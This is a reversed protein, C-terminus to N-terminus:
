TGADCIGVGHESEEECKRKGCYTCISHDGPICVTHGCELASHDGGDCLSSGCFCPSHDTKPDLTQDCSFHDNCSLRHAGGDDLVQECAPCTYEAWERCSGAGTGHTIGPPLEDSCKSHNCYSCYSHDLDAVSPDCQFHWGCEGIVAHTLDAVSPDCAYHGCNHWEQDIILTHEGGDCLNEGCGECTGHDGEACGFHGCERATRHIMDLGATCYPHGCSLIAHNKDDCTYHDAEGCGAAGHEGGDCVYHAGCEATGHEGGACVYHVGCVAKGHDETDCQYHGAEGCDAAGHEGGDCVHHNGCAAKGHEGSDCVHHNGCAAKGHEDGDCVYHVGCAAKGHDGTDCQYHGAEGCDATGHEGGDCVYHAGCVAKGHDETDCQYHGAEGCDAAGHEGSDCVHHNGCEAKGHEGGDCVYHAGCEAAGHASADVECSFHGCVLEHSANETKCKECINTHTHGDCLTKGCDGVPCISTHDAGDCVYHGSNGCSAQNHDVGDCLKHKQCDATGHSKGDCAYHGATGCSAAGHKSGDCRYHGNMGCDAAVHTGSCAYHGSIGCPAATHNGEACGYHGCSQLAHNMGSVTEDCRYHGCNMQHAGPQQCVKCLNDHTHGDCLYKGCGLVACISTHDGSDCAYHGCTLSGHDGGDCAYHGCSMEGHDGDDCAYHGCSMEGHDGDDCVYHGCSLSEHEGGDCAYHGCATEGHDGDDCAYHGCSMEGHEGSDCAYHGCSMEGHEGDDCAYHGCPMEGHEGDDCAYHGCTMTGHDGDDCSYHGCSMEGHDGDDCAYHGCSLEGHDGSDCAYHGCSMTGHEGDDCAYHGCTLSGHEGDDCAYHGCPMEGHDSSDCAYHGCPMEGHDGSDCAYHGCPMEGHDGSDCAYHGCPMEGHEGSDCAYHGCPMEGHDGDDCAYHGCPMEGHDGNDCAYHGCPMEGHEGDDCAYHGCPMEGHDGSDCAYHGCPMEGHDGSDCAYHGCPMEGHEGSDCAYHGCSMIGHEGSGCAYHGCDLMQHSGGQCVYHGCVLAEHAGAACAFHGCASLQHDNGDCAYHEAEGCAATHPEGNELAKGCVPCTKRKFVATIAADGDSVIFVTQAASADEITGATTEWHDFAYGEAAEASLQVQSGTSYSYDTNSVTGEGSTGFTLACMPVDGFHATLAIHDTVAFRYAPDASVLEGDMYWGIFEGGAVPQAEVRAFTGDLYQGGGNVAGFPNNTHVSVGFYAIDSGRSERQCSIPEGSNDSLSYEATSGQQAEDTYEDEILDPATLTLVDGLEVPIDAYNQVRTVSSHVVNYESLSVNVEGDGTATTVINYEADAPLHIIIEGDENMACGVVANNTTAVKDIMSAVLDGESDYIEVNVPCNVRVTRLTEPVAMTYPTDTYNPDGARVWALTIEQHHAQMVNSNTFALVVDLVEEPYHVLMNSLAKILEAATGYLDRYGEPQPLVEHLRKVVQDLRQEASTGNLRFIPTLVYILNEYDNATMVDMVQAMIVELELGSEYGKLTDLLQILDSQLIDYYANRGDISGVFGTIFRTLVSNMTQRTDDIVNISIFPDGSPLFALPDVKVQLTKAYESIRYEVADPDELVAGALIEDFEELMTNRASEFQATTVTPLLRATTNYRTFEWDIPAIMTVIDNPNVINHINAHDMDAGVSETLAGQPPEFAYCYLDEFALLAGNPLKNENLYGATLNAVAGGRSYGVVWIKVRGTINCDVIYEELFKIVNDRAQYFGTHGGELGLDVNDGWENYYNGGRIPLAILTYDDFKKHAAIVGISDTSPKDNWFDNQAYDVFGIEDLLKRANQSKEAWVDTEYSSWSSLELCLSMTALSPNYITSATDFYGDSYAYDIQVDHGKSYEGPFATTGWILEVEPFDYDQLDGIPQTTDIGPKETNNHGAILFVSVIVGIVALAAVTIIIPSLTRKTNKM